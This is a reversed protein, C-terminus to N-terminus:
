QQQPVTIQLLGADTGAPSGFTVVMPYSQMVYIPQNSLQLPGTELSFPGGQPNVAGLAASDSGTLQGTYSYLSPTLTVTVWDGIPATSSGVTTGGAISTSDPLGIVLQNGDSSPGASLFAATGGSIALQFTFTSQNQTNTATYVDGSVSLSYSQVTSACNQPEKVGVPSQCVALVNGAVRATGPTTTPSGAIPVDRTVIDYLGGFEALQTFSTGFVRGALYPIVGNGDGFDQGGVILDQAVQLQETGSVTYYGSGNAAFQETINVTGAANTINYSAPTDFNIVMSYQQGNAAYVTYTGNAPNVVSVQATAQNVPNTDGAAAITVTNIVDGQGVATLPVPVTFTFTLSHGTEILPVVFSTQGATIGTPCQAGAQPLCAVTATTGAPGSLAYTVQINDAESPGQNLIVATFVANSGGAVPSPATESVALSSSGAGVVATATQNGRPDTTSSVTLTDSVQGNTGANVTFPVSFALSGNLVLSPVSITAGSTQAPCVGGGSAVCTIPGSATLGASLANSISINQSTAPGNNKVTMVFTGTAGALVPGPPAVGSVVLEAAVVSATATFSNATPDPNTTIDVSLGNSLTGNASSAVVTAVTFTLTGGSPLTPVATEVGVVSPCKAGGSATCTISSLTLGNGLHDTANFADTADPGNNKVTMVWNITSGGLVATTPGTGSVVVNTVTDYATATVVASAGSPDIEESFSARMTNQITGTAGSDLQVTVTFALTGGNPISPVSMSVSAPSPCTAGGSATCTISIFKLGNGINDTITVDQAPYSGSNTVTMVFNTQTGALVPSTPGTGSVNLQTGQRGSGSGCAALL